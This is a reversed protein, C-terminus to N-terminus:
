VKTTPYSVEMKEEKEEALTIEMKQTESEKQGNENKNTKCIDQQVGKQYNSCGRQM